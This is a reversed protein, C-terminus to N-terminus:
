VPETRRSATLLIGIGLAASVLSGVLIGLKAQGELGTGPFALGSIFLAMTFGIGALWATGYVHRWSVGDPLAALGMKVAIWSAVCVGAPKGIVLGAMIGLPVPSALARMASADIAVGANFLAFVPVIGFAVWPHVMHEFRQLPSKAAELVRGLASIAAFRDPDMALGTGNDDHAEIADGSRRIVGAIAEPLIRVRAPVFMASLVGALTAHV